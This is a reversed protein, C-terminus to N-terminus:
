ISEPLGLWDPLAAIDALVAELADRNSHIDSIVAFPTELHDTQEIMTGGQWRPREPSEAHGWRPPVM